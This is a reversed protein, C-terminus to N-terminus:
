SRILSARYNAAGATIQTAISTFSLGNATTVMVEVSVDRMHGFARGAYVAGDGWNIIKGDFYDIM